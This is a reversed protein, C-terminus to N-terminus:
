IDNSFLFTIIKFKNKYKQKKLYINYFLGIFVLIFVTILIILNIYELNDITKEYKKENERELETKKVFILYMVFLLILVIIFIIYYIKVLIIFFIFFIISDNMIHNLHIYQVPSELVVFFIIILFIFIYKVYINSDLLYRFKSPFLKGLYNASIILILLFIIFLPFKETLNM